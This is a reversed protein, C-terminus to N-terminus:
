KHAFQRKAAAKMEECKKRATKGRFCNQIKSAAQAPNLIVDAGHGFLAQAEAPQM